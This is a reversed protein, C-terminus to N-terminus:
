LEIWYFINILIFLIVTEINIRHRDIQREKKKRGRSRGVGSPFSISKKALKFEINRLIKADEGNEELNEEQTRGEGDERTEESNNLVVVHNALM